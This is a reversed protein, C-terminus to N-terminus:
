HCWKVAVCQVFNVHKVANRTVANLDLKICHMRKRRYKTLPRRGYHEGVLTKHGNETTAALAVKGSLRMRTPTTVTIGNQEWYSTHPGETNRKTRHCGAGEEGTSRRRDPPSGAQRVQEAHWEFQVHRYAPRILRHLQVDVASNSCPRPVATGACATFAYLPLLFKAASM